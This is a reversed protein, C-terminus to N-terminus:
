IYSRARSPQPNLCDGLGTEFLSELGWALFRPIDHTVATGNRGTVTAAAPLERQFQKIAVLAASVMFM